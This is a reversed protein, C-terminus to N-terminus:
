NFTLDDNSAIDDLIALLEEDDEIPNVKGEEEAKAWWSKRKPGYISEKKWEKMEMYKVKFKYKAKADEQSFDKWKLVKYCNEIWEIEGYSLRSYKDVMWQKYLSEYRVKWMAAEREANKLAEANPNVEKKVM